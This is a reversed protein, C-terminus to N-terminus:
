EDSSRAPTPVPLNMQRMVNAIFAAERYNRRVANEYAWILYEHAEAADDVRGRRLLLLASKTRAVILERVGGLREYVPLQEERRIRLAEDLEGRAALVDAIQGWVLAGSRQDGLERFLPLLRGGLRSLAAAPDGQSAEIEALKRQAHAASHIDGQEEFQAEATLYHQRAEEMEGQEGLIDGAERHMLATSRGGSGANVLYSRIEELRRQRAHSDPGDRLNLRQGVNAPTPAERRFDLVASRWAWLDPAEDVFENIDSSVLWLLLMAPCASALHERRYNLLKFVEPCRRRWHEIGVVHIVPHKGALAELRTQLEAFDEPAEKTLDLRTSEPILASAHRIVAEREQFDNWELLLLRFGKESQSRLRRVLRLLDESHSGDFNWRELDPAPFAESM